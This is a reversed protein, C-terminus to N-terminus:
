CIDGRSFLVGLCGLESQTKRRHAVDPGYVKLFNNADDTTVPCNDVQAENIMKLFRAHSPRGILEYMRKADAIKRRQRPTFVALNQAVTTVFSYANVSSNTYNLGVPTADYYYLGAKSPKFHLPEADPRHVLVGEYIGSDQTIRYPQSVAAMSLINGIGNKNLWVTGFGPLDGIMHTTSEGGNSHITCGKPDKSRRNNRLFNPNTFMNVTSASDLLIWQPNIVYGAQTVGSCCFSMDETEPSGEAVSLMANVTPAGDDPLPDTPCNDQFHGMQGCGYCRIDPRPRPGRMQAFALHEGTVDTRRPPAITPPPPVYRSLKLHAEKLTQPYPDEDEDVFRNMLHTQLAGYRKPDAQRIFVAAMMSEGAKKQAELYDKFTYPDTVPSGDAEKEPDDLNLKRHM